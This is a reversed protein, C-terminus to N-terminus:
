RVLTPLHMAPRRHGECGDDYVYGAPVYVKVPLDPHAATLRVGVGVDRALEAVRRMLVVAPGPTTRRDGRTPRPTALLQSAVWYVGGDALTRRTLTVVASGAPTHEVLLWREPSRYARRAEHRFSYGLVWRVIQPAAGALVVAVATAVVPFAPWSLLVALSWVLATVLFWVIAILAVVLTGRQRHRCVVTVYRRVGATVVAAVEPWSARGAAAGSRATDSGASVEGESHRRRAIM